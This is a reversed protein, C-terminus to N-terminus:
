LEGNKIIRHKKNTKNSDQNEVEKRLQSIKESWSTIKEKPVGLLESLGEPNNCITAFDDWFNGCDASRLNNGTRIVNLAKSNNDNELLNYFEGFTIKM